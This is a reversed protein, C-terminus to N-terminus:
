FFDKADHNVFEGLPTVVTKVKDLIDYANLLTFLIGM